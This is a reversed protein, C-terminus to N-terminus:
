GLVDEYIQIADNQSVVVLHFEVENGQAILWRVAATLRQQQRSRLRLGIFDPHSLHKVEALILKDQAPSRLLLDIEAFPTRWRRRLVTFGRQEYFKAAALESDLGQQM